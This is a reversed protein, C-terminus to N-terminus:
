QGASTSLLTTRVLTSIRAHLDAEDVDRMRSRSVLAIGGVDADDRKTRLPIREDRFREGEIADGRVEGADDITADLAELQGIEIRQVEQKM